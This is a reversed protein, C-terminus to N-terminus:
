TKQKNLIVHQYRQYSKYSGQNWLKYNFITNSHEKYIQKLVGLEVIDHMNNM